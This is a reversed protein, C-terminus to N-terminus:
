GKKVEFKLIKLLNDDVFTDISRAGVVKVGKQKGSCCL